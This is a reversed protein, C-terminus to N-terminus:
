CVKYYCHAFWSTVKFDLKGKNMQASMYKCNLHFHVVTSVNEFINRCYILYTSAAAFPHIVSRNIAYEICVEVNNQQVTVFLKKLALNDISAATQKILEGVQEQHNGEDDNIAPFAILGLIWPGHSFFFLCVNLNCMHM